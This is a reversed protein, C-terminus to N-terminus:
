FVTVSLVVGMHRDPADSTDIGVDAELCTGVGNGAVGPGADAFFVACSTQGPGHVVYSRCSVM